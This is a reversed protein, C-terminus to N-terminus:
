VELEKIPVKILETNGSSLVKNEKYRCNKYKELLKQEFSYARLGKRYKIIKKIIFKKNDEKTYREEVSRNTVGIKYINFKPFYLYYLIAPVDPKFGSKKCLPCGRGRIHSQPTQKFVGHIKCKINVPIKMGNIKVLDYIYKDKHVKIFTNIVEETTKKNVGSCKACGYRLHESPVQEFNGHIPCVITIKIQSNIFTNKIYKFKNNYKKKAKKIFRNFKLETNVKKHVIEKNAEQIHEKICEKCGNHGERLSRGTILMAPGHHITCKVVAIDTTTKPYKYIYANKCYQDYQEKTITKM